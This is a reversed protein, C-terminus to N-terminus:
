FGFNPDLHLVQCLFNVLRTSSLTVFSCLVVCIHIVFLHLLVLEHDFWLSARFIDCILTILGFSTAMPEKKRPETLKFGICIIVKLSNKIKTM